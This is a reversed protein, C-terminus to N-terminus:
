NHSLDWQANLIMQRRMEQVSLVSIRRAKNLLENRDLQLADKMRQAFEDENRKKIVWGNVGDEIMDSSSSFDTVVCPCACAVAEVLSTSWGEKYSGMVFVNAMNLYDSIEEPTKKGLLLIRDEMGCKTIQEKIEAEDEGDGILIFQSNSINTKRFCDIMFKWGKIWNLRGVYVYLTLNKDISYRDRLGIPDKVKFINADYRTPFSKVISSPILGKSRELLEAIAKKDAAPLIVAVKSAKRFYFFDYLNAIRRMFKYRSFKIPNEVGPMILTVKNLSSSPLSLLAEPTQVVIYDHEVKLIDRIYRKMRCYATIRSPIFPKGEEKKIKAVSYYEYEIGDIKRKTWKGVHCENNTDIGVLKLDRGFAGLLHRAFSLHGGTPYGVYDCWEIFLIKAM